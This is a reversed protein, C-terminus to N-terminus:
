LATTLWKYLKGFAVSYLDVEEQNFGDLLRECYNVTEYLRYDDTKPGVVCYESM